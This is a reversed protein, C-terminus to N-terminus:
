HAQPAVEVRSPLRKTGLRALTARSSRRVSEASASIPAARALAGSKREARSRVRSFSSAESPMTRPAIKRTWSSGRSIWTSAARPMGLSPRRARYWGPSPIMPRTTCLPRGTTTGALPLSGSRIFRAKWRRREPTGSALKM